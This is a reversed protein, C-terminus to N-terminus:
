DSQCREMLKSERPRTMATGEGRGAATWSKKWNEGLRGAWRDWCSRLSCYMRKVPLWRQMQPGIGADFPLKASSREQLCHVRALFLTFFDTFEFYRSYPLIFDVQSRHPFRLRNKFAFSGARTTQSLPFLYVSNLSVDATVSLASSGSLLWVASDTSRWRAHAWVLSCIVSM